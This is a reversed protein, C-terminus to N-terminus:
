QPHDPPGESPTQVLSIDSFASANGARDFARVRYRYGIDFRLDFDAAHTTTVSKLTRFSPCVEGDCRQVEYRVVGFDDTAARWSLDVAMRPAGFRFEAVFDAPATPPQRDVVAPEISLRYTRSCTAGGAGESSVVVSFSFSGELSPTGSIRASGSDPVPTKPSGTPLRLSVGNCQFEAGAVQEECRAGASTGTPANIFAWFKREGRSNLLEIRSDFVTGVKAQFDHTPLQACDLEFDIDQPASWANGALLLAPMAWLLSAPRLFDGGPVLKAHSRPHNM